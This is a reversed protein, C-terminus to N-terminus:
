IVSRGHDYHTFEEWILVRSIFIVFGSYPLLVALLTIDGQMENMILYQLTLHQQIRRTTHYDFHCPTIVWEGGLVSM